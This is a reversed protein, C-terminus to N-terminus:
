NEKERVPMTTCRENIASPYRYDYMTTDDVPFSDGVKVIVGDMATHSDRVKTDRSTIWMHYGFTVSQKNAEFRGHNSARMMETRSIRRARYEASNDFYGEILKSIENMSMGDALGKSIISDIEDVTTQNVITAYKISAENVFGEIGPAHIDIIEGYTQAWMEMSQYLAKSLYVKGEARFEDVWKDFDILMGTFETKYHKLNDILEIIEIRQKSFLRILALEFDSAMDDSFKIVSEATRFKLLQFDTEDLGKVVSKVDIELDKQTYPIFKGISEQIVALTDKQPMIPPNYYDDMGPQEVNPLEFMEDRMENRSVVGLEVGKAWRDFKKTTDKQLASVKSLDFQVLLNQKATIEPLLFDNLLDEIKKLRPLITSTWLLKEQVDANALVSSDSFDMLYIPPVGYVESITKKTFNRQELLQSDKNSITIPHFKFGHSMAAIKGHNSVGEFNMKIADMARQWVDKGIEKETTVIGSPRAGHKFLNKSSQQASLDLTVEGLAAQIPSIGRLPQSPNFYKLMFIDKPQAEIRTGMLDLIYHDVVFDNQPVLILMYNPFPFLEVLKRGQYRKLIPAEGTLELYTIVAEWFDYATQYQNYKKFIQFDPLHSVDVWNDSESVDWVKLQLQAINQAIVSSCKYITSQMGYLKTTAETDGQSYVPTNSPISQFFGIDEFEKRVMEQVSFPTSDLKLGSRIQKVIGM